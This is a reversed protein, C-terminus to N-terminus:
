SLCVETGASLNSVRSNTRRHGFGVESGTESVMSPDTGFKVGLLQKRLQHYDTRVTADPQPLSFWVTNTVGDYANDSVRAQLVSSLKRIEEREGAVAPKKAQHVLNRVNLSLFYFAKLHKFRSLDLSSWL